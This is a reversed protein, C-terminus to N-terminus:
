KLKNQKEFREIYNECKKSYDDLFAEVRILFHEVKKRAYIIDDNNNSKIILSEM